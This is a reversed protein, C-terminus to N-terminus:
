IVSSRSRFLWELRDFWIVYPHVHAAWRDVVIGMDSTGAAKLYDCLGQACRAVNDFTFDGAILARWGDTGFRIDTM